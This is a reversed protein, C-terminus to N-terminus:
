DFANIETKTVKIQCLQKENFKKMTSGKLKIIM